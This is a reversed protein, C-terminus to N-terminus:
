LQIVFNVNSDSQDEDGIEIEIKKDHHEPAEITIHLQEFQDEAEKEKRLRKLEEIIFLDEISM